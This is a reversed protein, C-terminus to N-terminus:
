TTFYRSFSPIKTSLMCISYNWILVAIGGGENNKWMASPELCKWECLRKLMPQM